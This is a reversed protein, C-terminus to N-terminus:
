QGWYLQSEDLLIYTSNREVRLIDLLPENKNLFFTLFFILQQLLSALKVVLHTSAASTLTEHMKLLRPAWSFIFSPFACSCCRSSPFLILPTEHRRKKGLQDFGNVAQLDLPPWSPNERWVLCDPSPRPRSWSNKKENIKSGGEEEM